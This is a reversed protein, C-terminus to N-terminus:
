SKPAEKPARPWSRPDLRPFCRQCLHFFGPSGFNDVNIHVTRWGLPVEPGEAERETSDCGDCIFLTEKAM